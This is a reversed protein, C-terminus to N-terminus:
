FKRNGKKSYGGGGSRHNDVNKKLDSIKEESRTKFRSMMEEFPDKEEKQAGKKERVYATYVPPPASPDLSPASQAKERRVPEAKKQVIGEQELAKISLSIKGKEDIQIVKVQVTQNLSLKEHINQVFDTSVQSIHVMGSKGNAFSVFAGYDKIASVKGELVAGIEIETNM